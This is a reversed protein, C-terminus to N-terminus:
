KRGNPIDNNTLPNVHLNVNKNNRSQEVKSLGLEIRVFGRNSGEEVLGPCANKIEDGALGAGAVQNM